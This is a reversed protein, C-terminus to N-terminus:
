LMYTEPPRFSECGITWVITPDGVAKGGNESPVWAVKKSERRISIDGIFSNTGDAHVERICQVPCGDLTREGAEIRQFLERYKATITSNWAIADEQTYPSPPGALWTYVREDNLIEVTAEVDGPRPPTIRVNDNPSPLQLYLEGTGSDLLLPHYNAPQNSPEM